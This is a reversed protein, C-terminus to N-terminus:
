IKIGSFIAVCGVVKIKVDYFHAKLATDLSVLDDNANSFIGKKNYFAMLKKALNNQSTDKGLITSGFLVAGKNMVDRLHSFAISKESLDGPLCHLLYNISVSDFKENSLTLPKLIDRCYVEPNLHQIAKSTSELSNNNLDVLAVRKVASPLYNKLYYGTGVGVDLHNDSVLAVFKKGILSTPCKWLYSNSFGLVWIDYISLVKKSYVAQGTFSDKNM